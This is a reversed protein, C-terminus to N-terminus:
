PHMISIWWTEFWFMGTGTRLGRKTGRDGGWSALGSVAAARLTELVGPGLLEIANNSPAFVQASARSRGSSVPHSM